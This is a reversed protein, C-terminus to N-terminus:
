EWHFFLFMMFRQSYRLEMLQRLMQLSPNHFLNLFEFSMQKGETTGDSDSWAKNDTYTEWFGTEPDWCPERHKWPVSIDESISTNSLAIDPISIPHLGFTDWNHVHDTLISITHNKNEVPQLPRQQFISALGITFARNNKFDASPGKRQRRPTPNTTAPQLQPSKVQIAPQPPIPNAAPATKMTLQNPEADLVPPGPGPHLASVNEPSASPAQTLRLARLRKQEPAQQRFLQRDYPHIRPCESAKWCRNFTVFSFCLENKSARTPFAQHLLNVLFLNMNFIQAFRLASLSSIQELYLRNLIQYLKHRHQNMIRLLPHLQVTLTVRLLTRGQLDM